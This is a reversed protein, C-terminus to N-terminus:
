TTMSELGGCTSLTLPWPVVDLSNTFPALGFFPIWPFNHTLENLGHSLCVMDSFCQFCRRIMYDDSIRLGKLLTFSRHWSVDANVPGTFLYKLVHEIDNWSAPDDDGTNEKSDSTEANTGNSGCSYTISGLCSLLFLSAYWSNVDKGHHSQLHNTFSDSNYVLYRLQM